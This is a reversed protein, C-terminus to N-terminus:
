EIRLVTNEIQFRITPFDRTNKRSKTAQTVDTGSGQEDTERSRARCVVNAKIEPLSLKEVLLVGSPDEAACVTLCATTVTAIM